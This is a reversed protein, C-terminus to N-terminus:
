RAREKMVSDVAQGASGGDVQGGTLKGVMLAAVETAVGRVDALAQTKAARIRAEAAATEAAMKKGFEAERRAAGATIEAAAQNLAAQAQARADSIAKQYAALVQDAEEKLTEARRLNGDIRDERQGLIDTIRPLVLRSMLLYLTVFTVLLWFLQPGFTSPDFQPM